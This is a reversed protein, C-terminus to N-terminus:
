NYCQVVGKTLLPGGEHLYLAPWVSYAVRTGSKTYEKYLDKNFNEGKQIDRDINMEPDQVVMLWCIVACKEGFESKTIRQILSRDIGKYRVCDDNFSGYGYVSQLLIYKYQDKYIFRNIKIATLKFEFTSLQM